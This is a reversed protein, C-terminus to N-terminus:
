KAVPLIENYYNGIERGLKLGNDCAFRFHIGGYVRSISVQDAAENFSKFSFVPLDYPLETSDTFAINDGLMKTLVTSAAGSITSHGSPYEPFPPTQIYSFWNPDFWDNIVTIPRITNYKYKANWCVIFADAIVMSTYTLTQSAKMLDINKDKIINGAIALWHGGPTMKQAYYTMHGSFHAVNPNCDWFSSINKQDDNLTKSVDYVEKLAKYYDSNPDKSYQPPVLPVFQDISKLLFTRHTGWYPEIPPAYAPPTLQWAGTTDSLSYRTLKRTNKFNDKLAWKLIAGAVSSGWETSNKVVEDSLGTKRLSDVYNNQWDEIIFESWVLKEGVKNFATIAALEYNINKKSDVDPMSDLGNSIGKLNKYEPFAPQLAEYAAVQSYAYVRSAFPPTLLDQVICDTLNQQAKLLSNANYSFSEKKNENKCSSLFAIMLLFRFSIQKTIQLHNM